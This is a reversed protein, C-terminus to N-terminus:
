SVAHLFRAISAVRLPSLSIEETFSSSRYEAKYQQKQYCLLYLHMLTSRSDTNWLCEVDLLPFAHELRPGRDAVSGSILPCPRFSSVTRYSVIRDREGCRSRSHATGPALSAETLRAACRRFYLVVYETPGRWLASAADGLSSESGTTLQTVRVKAPRERLPAAM